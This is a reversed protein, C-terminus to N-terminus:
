GILEIVTQLLQRADRLLTSLRSFNEGVALLGCEIVEM